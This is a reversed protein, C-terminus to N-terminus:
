RIKEKQTSMQEMTWQFRFSRLTGRKQLSQCRQRRFQSFLNTMARLSSPEFQDLLIFFKLTKIFTNLTIVGSMKFYATVIILNFYFVAFFISIRYIKKFTKIYKLLVKKQIKPILFSHKNLFMFRPQFSVFKLHKESFLILLLKFFLFLVLHLPKSKWIM